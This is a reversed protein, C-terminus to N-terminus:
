YQLAKILNAVPSEYNSNYMHRLLDCKFFEFRMPRRFAFRLAFDCSWKWKEDKDLINKTEGRGDITALKADTLKDVNVFLLRQPCHSWIQFFKTLKAFFM